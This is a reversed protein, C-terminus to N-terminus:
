PTQCLARRGRRTPRKPKPLRKAPSSAKLHQDSHSISADAAAYCTKKTPSRPQSADQLVSALLSRSGDENFRDLPRREVAESGGGSRQHVLGCFFCLARALDGGGDQVGPKYYTACSDSRVRRCRVVAGGRASAVLPRPDATVWLGAELLFHRTDGRSRWLATGRVSSVGSVLLLM